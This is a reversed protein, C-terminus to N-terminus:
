LLLIILVHAAFQFSVCKMNLNIWKWAYMIIHLQFWRYEALIGNSTSTYVSIFVTIYLIFWIHIQYISFYILLLLASNMWWLLSPICCLFVMWFVSVLIACAKAEDATALLLLLFFLLLPFLFQWHNASLLWAIKLLSDHYIDLTLLFIWM